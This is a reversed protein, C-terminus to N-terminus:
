FRSCGSARGAARTRPSAPPLLLASATALSLLV